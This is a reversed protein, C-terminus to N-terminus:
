RERSRAHTGTKREHYDHLRRKARRFAERVTTAADKYAADIEDGANPEMVIALDVGPVGINLRVEFSGTQHHGEREVLVRCSVIGGFFKGLKAAERRILRDLAASSDVGRYTIQVPFSM